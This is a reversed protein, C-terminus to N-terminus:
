CPASSSSSPARMGRTTRWLTGSCQGPLNSTRPVGSRCIAINVVNLVSSRIRRIVRDAPDALHDVGHEAIEVALEIGHIRPDAPRTHRGLLQQLGRHQHRQVRQAALPREALPQVVVQQELPEQVQGDVGGREIRRGEGLVALPEQVVLDGVPEEGGHHTLRLQAAVEGTIVEGDVPRQQLRPRRVLAELGLVAGPSIGGRAAVHPRNGPGAGCCGSADTWSRDRPTAPVDRGSRCHTRRATPPVPLLESPLM